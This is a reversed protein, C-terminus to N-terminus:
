KEVFQVADVIVYGDTGATSVVVTGTAGFDYEGLVAFTGGVAPPTRQNVTLNATGAAHSVAVPVNTARNANVTYALRVEYHGAKPLSAAFTATKTGKAANADHRYGSGVFPKSAAATTWDGTLTASSDDVVTGEFSGPDNGAGLIQKDLLLQARLAPYDIDQVAVGADIAQSAATAASQGLIMFVPEMRISGYAIHSSSLCVPVLLNDAEAQKPVMARYSIPYPGGPNVQVDGENMVYDGAADHVVYRQTHHSDMNYSGMGIPDPTPTQGRLHKEAMVFDSVMRRAERVYIQHPWGGNDTFEDKALGWKSMDTRVDAPVRPDNALFYFYGKQYTQHELLIAEREVYSAEPYDYSMGIDDTSFPGSNNTDTKHNPAPDFKGFVHRSGALLTRLLLEYQTADYGEPKPFPLRNSADNTLCVRYNYAQIKADAEGDVGPPEDKVRPLLGSSPDGAVVYPSIKTTFQHSDAAAVEVGNLSEGYTANAERGVTYSVGAAAMLDGEYTADIFVSGAYTAGSLTTISRISAGDKSVGDARDLWQGREVELQNEAVLAEFVEEAVHPEFVWMSDATAEYHSYSAKTQQKWRADDNYAQKIRAYFNRSLGGIVSNDGTDTWGLGQSSLGGLYQEPCVLIVSKGLQKAQVAAIVGGSTCGYIVIDHAKGPTVAGGGGAGAELANGDGASTNATGAAGNSAGSQNVSGGSGDSPKGASGANGTTDNSGADDGCATLTLGGVLVFCWLAARVALRNM